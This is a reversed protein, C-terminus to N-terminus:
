QRALLERAHALATPSDPSGSLMRAIEIERGITDLPRVETRALVADDFKRVQYQRAGMAAVQALHTVVVVQRTESLSSLMRGLATAAVGGVGADIEDFVLSDPGNPVALHLALMVRSLEGGSAVKSLEMPRMGANASFTFVVEDGGSDEGVLVEFAVSGMGLQRLSTVVADALRPAVRCREAWLDGEHIALENLATELQAAIAERDTGLAVEEEIERVLREEAALVDALENGYRRILGKLLSTRELLAEIRRPDADLEEEASRLLDALRAAGEALSVSTEELAAFAPRGELFRSAQKLADRAGLQDDGGAILLLAQQLGTRAGERDALADLETGLEEIEFPSTIKASRLQELEHRKLDLAREAIDSEGGLRLLGQRLTRVLARSRDTADTSINGFLDLARRAAEPAFLTQAEHQGHLELWASTATRLEALTVSEGDLLARSRGDRPISRDVRHERGDIEFVAEVLAQEAGPRILGLDARGGLVLQLADVLLTKGAGTEGTLVTMGPGCFLSAEAFVGLDRVQISRLM